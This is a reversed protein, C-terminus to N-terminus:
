PTTGLIIYIEDVFAWDLNPGIGTGATVEVPVLNGVTSGHATLWAIMKEYATPTWEYDIPWTAVDKIDCFDTGNIIVNNDWNLHTYLDSASKKLFGSSYWFPNTNLAAEDQQIKFEGNNHIRTDGCPKNTIGLGAVDDSGDELAPFQLFDVSTLTADNTGYSDPLTTGYANKSYCERILIGSNYIKFWEIDIDSSRSAALQKGIVLVDIGVSSSITVSTDDVSATSNEPDFTFTHWETDFDVINVSTSGSLAYFQNPSDTKCGMSFFAGSTHGFLKRSNLFSNFKARVVVKIGSGTMVSPDAKGNGDFRLVKSGGNEAFYHYDDQTGAWMTNLGSTSTITGNNGNGSVDYVTPGSKEIFTYHAYGVDIFEILRIKSNQTVGSNYAAITTDNSSEGAWPISNADAIYSIGNLILTAKSATGDWMVRATYTTDPVLSTGTFVATDATAGDSTYLKLVGSSYALTVGKVASTFGGNGWIGRTIDTIFNITIDIPQGGVAKYGGNVYDGVGDFVLAPSDVYNADLANTTVDVATSPTLFSRIWQLPFLTSPSFSNSGGTWGFRKGFFQM